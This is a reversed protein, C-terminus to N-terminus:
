SAVHRSMSCQGSGKGAGTTGGERHSNLLGHSQHIRFDRGCIIIDVTAARADVMGLSSAGNYESFLEFTEEDADAIETGHENLISFLNSRSMM